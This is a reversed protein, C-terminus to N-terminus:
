VVSTYRTLVPIYLVYFYIGQISSMLQIHMFCKSSTRGMKYGMSVGSFRQISFYIHIFTYVNFTYICIQRYRYRDIYRYIDIDM